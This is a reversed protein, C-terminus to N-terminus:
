KNPIQMSSQAVRAQHITYIKVSSSITGTKQAPAREHLNNNLAETIAGRGYWKNGWGEM